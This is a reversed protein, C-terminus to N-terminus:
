GGMGRGRVSIRAIEDGATLKYLVSPPIGPPFTDYRCCYRVQVQNLFADDRVRRGLGLVDLNVKRGTGVKSAATQVEPHATLAVTPIELRKQCRDLAQELETIRRQLVSVGSDLQERGFCFPFFLFRAVPSYTRLQKSFTMEPVVTSSNCRWDLYTDCISCELRRVVYACRRFSGYPRCVRAYYILLSAKDDGGRAAAYARVVPAFVHTAYAQLVAFVSGSPAMEKETKGEEKGAGATDADADSGPFSIIQLACRRACTASLSPWSHPTRVLACPWWTTPGIGIPVVAIINRMNACMRPERRALRKVTSCVECFTLRIPADEFGYGRFCLWRCTDLFTRVRLM